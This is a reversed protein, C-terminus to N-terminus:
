NKKAEYKYVDQLVSCKCDKQFLFAFPLITRQLNVKLNNTYYSIYSLIIIM